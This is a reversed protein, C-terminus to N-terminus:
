PEEVAPRLDATQARRGTLLMFARVAIWLSLAFLLAGNLPHLAQVWAAGAHVFAYQAGMLIALLIAGVVLRSCARGTAAFIWMIFAGEGIIHGTTTHDSWYKPTDFISLGALFFQALAGATFLVALVLLVIRGGTTFRGPVGSGSSSSM